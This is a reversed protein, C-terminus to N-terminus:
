REKYKVTLGLKKRLDNVEKKLYKNENVIIEVQGYYSETIRKEYMYVDYLSTNKMHEIMAFHSNILQKVLLFADKDENAKKLADIYEDRTRENNM